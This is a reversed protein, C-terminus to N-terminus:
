ALILSSLLDVQLKSSVSRIKELHAEELPTTLVVNVKEPTM